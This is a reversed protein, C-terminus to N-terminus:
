YDNTEDWVSTLTNVPNVGDGYKAGAKFYVQSPEQGNNRTNNKVIGGDKIFTGGSHVTVGGGFNMNSYRGGNNGSIEGGHMEFIGNNYVQVASVYPMGTILGSNMIFTGGNKAEISGSTNTGAGIGETLTGGNLILKGENEIEFLYHHLGRGTITINEGIILTGYVKCFKYVSDCNITVPKTAKLELTKGEPIILSYYKKWVNSELTYYGSSVKQDDPISPTNIKYDNDFYVSLTQVSGDLMKDGLISGSSGTPALADVLSVTFEASYDNGNYNGNVLITYNGIPLTNLTIKNSNSGSGPTYYGSNSNIIEGHTLVTYSYTIQNSPITVWDDNADKGKATFTFTKNTSDKPVVTNDIEFLVDEYIDEVDVNGVNLSLVAEGSSNYTVGYTDGRFYRGPLVNSNKGNQYGYGSTIVVQDTETPATETTIGIKANQLSTGSGKKLAGTVNIISNDKIYLNSKAPASINGSTNNYIFVNSKINLQYNTALYIGGGTGNAHNGEIRTDEDLTVDSKIYIGGGCTPNTENPDDSETAIGGTITIGKITVSPCTIISLARHNTGSADIVANVTQTPSKQLTISSAKGYLSSGLMDFHGNQTGCINIKYNKTNSGTASIYQIAQTLTQFPSYLYGTNYQAPSLGRGTNGVFITENSKQKILTDSIIFDGDSSIATNNSSENKWTDTKMNNFVNVMQNEYYVVVDDANMFKFLLSYNGAPVDVEQGSAQSDLTIQSGSVNITYDSSYPWSSNNDCTIGVKAIRIKDTASLDAAYSFNIPLAISGTGSSVLPVLVFDYEYAANDETVKVNNKEASFIIRNNAPLFPDEMWVKITYPVNFELNPISYSNGTVSGEIVTTGHTATCNYNFSAPISPFATRNHLDTNVQNLQQLYAQPYAGNTTFSGSITFYKNSNESTESTSESTSPPSNISSDEVESITNECSFLLFSSLILIFLNHGIRVQSNKKM